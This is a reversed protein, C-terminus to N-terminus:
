GLYLENGLRELISQYGQQDRQLWQTQSNKYLQWTYTLMYTEFFLFSYYMAGEKKEKNLNM